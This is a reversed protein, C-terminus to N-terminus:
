EAKEYIFVRFGSSSRAGYSLIADVKWLYGFGENLITDPSIVIFTDKLLRSMLPTGDVKYITFSYWDADPIERWRFVMKDGRIVANDV